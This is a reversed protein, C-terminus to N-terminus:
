KLYLMKIVKSYSGAQLRTLYLGTSVPQGSDDLGNWIHEYWGAAQTESTFTKVTNGRIDYIVLSVSTEEPLGYRLTTSPNFPNPYNQDLVYETPLALGEEVAVFGVDFTWVESLTQLSDEDLASVQWYYRIDFQLDVEPVHIEPISVGEYVINTMSSDTAIIVRYHVNDFPDPDIAEQWTLEPRTSNGASENEPGVLLFLGPPEPLFDVWFMFDESQAIGGEDDMSIVQWFYQQNDATLPNSITISTEETIISDWESGEYWWHVEYEISDFPDPDFSREWIFTPTSTLVVVSDPSLLVAPWPDDNGFNMIFTHVGGTNMTVAGSADIAEVWWQYVTNQSFNYNPTWTTDPGQYGVIHNSVRWTLRYELSDNLDLDHAPHWTFTPYLFDDSFTSGDAPSILEFATPVENHSNTWFSATDSFTVGGSDDLASVAWYYVMNEMLEEAPIFSTGIVEVPVADSLEADTGLYFDYGTIVNVSNNAASRDESFKGKGIERLAITEDDPDSSSEWLFEPTLTTVMVNNVPSLLNFSAPLDNLTNVTFSQYGGENPTTAGSLDRAVVQWYYTTNDILELTSEFSVGPGEYIVELNEPTTGLQLEFSVQDGIDPDQTTTWIFEPLLTNLTEGVPSMLAFPEPPLNEANVLYMWIDSATEEGFEDFAIVQWYYAGDVPNVLHYYNTSVTDLIELSETSEGQLVVYEVQSGDLDHAVDWFLLSSTDSIVSENEPYVLNFTLPPDNSTNVMFTRFPTAFTAGSLDTAIVQWSFETNEYLTTEPIYSTASGLSVEILDTVDSGYYLSYSLEDQLDIDSSATWSFSPYETTEAGNLPTLLEFASPASNVSNTWFSWRESFLVGGDDDVAEVKWYYVMNESLNSTPTYTPNVVEIPVTESFLSDTDLYLQYSAIVLIENPSQDSKTEKGKNGRLMTDDPDSSPAWILTPTLDTVMSGNDPALLDFNTPLDNATNVRFNQYGDTNETSAGNLDSAVVKWSYTTNDLLPTLVQYSTDVGIDFSEVGPSPTDLYLVYTVTDIPDPDYAPQWRLIPSLTTIEEAAAPYLLSFNAPPDNVTNVLFSEPGVLSSSEYGDFSQVTWWFRGNDQLETTVNWSTADTGELVAIASDLQVTLEEDAYLRFNYTLTDSEADLSNNAELTIDGATVTDNIPSLPVPDSPISNMRFELSSWDSWFAGSAVRARLYYTQGNNLPEGAYPIMQLDSAVEGSEWVDVISFDSHSSIQIQYNTQSEGMSDYYDFSIVPNHTVLHQIDEDGAIDLNQVEMVRTTGTVEQSYWSENGDTDLATIALFYETAVLLGTLTYSTDTGVDLSNSYPYSSTDTDFYLRYGSFDDLYSPSWKIDIFDNGTAMVSLNRVSIPPANIDPIILWPSIAVTGSVTEGLGSPNRSVHFPGSSHGWWCSDADITVLNDNNMLAVSNDIINSQAFTPFSFDTSYIGPFAGATNGEMTVQTSRGEAYISYYAAGGMNTAHNHTILVNNLKPAALQFVYIGGGNTATNEAIVVESLTPVSFDYFCGIGGANETAVNGIITSHSILPHDNNLQIGGGTYAQNNLVQIRIFESSTNSYVFTSYIGGGKNVAINNAIEVDTLLVHSNQLRLGGGGTYFGTGHAQNDNVKSARVILGSEETYIGGGESFAHNSTIECGALVANSQLAYVGGGQNTATNGTILCNKILPSELHLALGGGRIVNGGNQITFGDIITTTDITGGNNFVIVSSQSQGDIISLEAGASSILSIGGVTPWFINEAYTGPQVLVTDTSDAANLGAQITAYDDPINITIPMHEPTALPSEYAGIDPNSGAPNPRVDGGLDRGSEILTDLGAGICPSYDQIRFDHSIVDIFLPDTDLNSSNYGLVGINASNSIAAQGGEIDCHSINLYSTSSFDYFSLQPTSNNWVISNIMDVDAGFGVQIAGRGSAQNGYFTSNVIIGKAGGQLELASGSMSSNAVFLSNIIKLSDTSTCSFGGGTNNASNGRVICNIVLPNSHDSIHIAGGDWNTHNNEIILNSLIPSSMWCTIGGGTIVASGSAPYEGSGNRITLGNLTASNEGNEFVFVCGSEFGDVITQSIYGRDLTTLYLSSLVVDKGNFNINEYYTGPSLLITDGDVSYNIAAQITAFPASELGLSGNDDGTTSVHVFSNHRPAALTNEYAGMDPNSGAPNPRPNGKIDTPPVITTDLGAGICPSYDQLSFPTDANGTFLPDADIVNTGSYGGGILSYFINRIFGGNEIQNNGDPGNNYLISNYVNITSADRGYIGNASNNTITCNYIDLITGSYLARIGGGEAGPGIDNDSIISNTLTLHGGLVEMGAGCCDAYNNSVISNVLEINGNVTMGGGSGISYNDTILLNVLRASGGCSLGAGSGWGNTVTFGNIESFNSIIVCSGSENGDIITQTVYSPDQSTLTLSGVVISKSHFNINEVYTGPQVLVTDSDRSYDIAAQITAFPSSEEGFGDDDDGSSSVYIFSNHTFPSEYAGIDPNSGVPYPRPNGEIDFAPVITTDLGGSICPSYQNLRYSNEEFVVDTVINSSGPWAGNQNEDWGGFAYSICSNFIQHPALNWVQVDAGNINGSVISNYIELDSLLGAIVMGAGYRGSNNSITSNVIQANNTGTLFIGGGDLATVNEVVLVNKLLAKDCTEIHLGAGYSGCTNGKSTVNTLSFESYYAWIGGGNTNALNDEILINSLNGHYNHLSIGGGNGTSINSRINLYSFTPSSNECHIGGGYVVNNGNQITVGSLVATTDENNSFTAVSTVQNGDIVTQSIYSTDQTTLFLSSVVINKGNFNINEFYTGPQVLVSDGDVAADIGAQITAHDGPINIIGPIHIPEGELNEFAGIDPHSNIPSPRIVGALDESPAYYWRGQYYLSDLGFGIAPSATSLTFDDTQVNIFLPDEETNLSGPGLWPYQTISNSITVSDQSNNTGSWIDSGNGWIISNAIFTGSTDRVYFGIDSCNTVTCNLFSASSNMVTVGFRANDILLNRAEVNSSGRVILAEQDINKFILNELITSGGDGVQMGRWNDQFTFGSILSNSNHVYFPDAATIITATPGDISKLVISKNIAELPDPYTGASVLVTDGDVAADIGAQITTQDAPVNIVTASISIAFLLSAIISRIM